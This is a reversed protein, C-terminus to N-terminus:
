PEESRGAWAPLGFAPALETLTHSGSLAEPAGEGDPTFVLREGDVRMTVRYSRDGITATRGDAGAVLQRGRYAIPFAWCAPREGTTCIVDVDTTSRLEAEARTRADVAPATREVRFSFRVEAGPSAPLVDEFRLGDLRPLRAGQETRDVTAVTAYSGGARRVALVRIRRSADGGEEEEWDEGPCTVDVVAVEDSGSSARAGTAARCSGFYPCCRPSWEQEVYSCESAIQGALADLDEAALAAGAYRAPALWPRAFELAPPASVTPARPFDRELRLAPDAALEAFTGSRPPPVASDCESEVNPAPDATADPCRVGEVRLRRPTTRVTGDAVAVDAVWGIGHPESPPDPDCPLPSDYGWVHHQMRLTPLALCAVEAGAPACVIRRRTVTRRAAGDCGEDEDPDCDNGPYWGGSEIVTADVVLEPGAPPLVDEFRVGSLRLEEDHGRTLTGVLRAGAADRVALYRVWPVKADIVAMEHIASGAPAAVRETITAACPDPHYRQAECHETLAAVLADFSPSPGIARRAIDAIGASEDSDSATRARVSAQVLHDYVTRNARLHFSRQFADVAAPLDGGAEAVLGVNYLCRAFAARSAADTPPPYDDAAGLILPAARELDGARFAIYGAECRVPAPAAPDALLPQLRAFAEAHRGTRTLARAEELATRVASADM